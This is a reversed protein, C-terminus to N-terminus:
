ALSITYTVTDVTYSANEARATHFALASLAVFAIGRSVTEISEVQNM